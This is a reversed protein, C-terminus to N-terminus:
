HARSGFESAQLGSESLESSVELVSSDHQIIRAKKGAMGCLASTDKVCIKKPRLGAQGQIGRGGNILFAAAHAPEDHQQRPDKEMHVEAAASGGPPHM